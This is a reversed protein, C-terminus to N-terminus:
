ELELLRFRQASDDLGGPGPTYRMPEIVLHMGFGRDAIQRWGDTCRACCQMPGAPWHM